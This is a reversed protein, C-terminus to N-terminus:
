GGPLVAWPSPCRVDSGSRRQEIWSRIAEDVCGQGWGISGHPGGDVTIRSAGARVLDETMSTPAAWDATSQILLTPVVMPAIRVPENPGPWYACPFDRLLVALAGEETSEGVLEVLRDGADAESWSWDSCQTAFYAADNLTSDPDVGTVADALWGIGSREWAALLELFRGRGEPDLMLGVAVFSLGISGFHDPPSRMLEDRLTEYVSRPDQVFRGRCLGDDACWDLTTAILESALSARAQWTAATPVLEVPADLVLAEVHEPYMGAYALAVRTGYSQAVIPWGEIALETRLTELAVVNGTTGLRDLDSARIEAICGDVFSRASDDVDSVDSAGLIANYMATAPGDCRIGSSAATAPLDVLLLNHDPALSGVSIAVDSGVTAASIGPGGLLILLTSRSDSSSSRM